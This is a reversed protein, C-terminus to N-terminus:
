DSEEESSSSSDDNESLNDTKKSIEEQKVLFTHMKEIIPDSHEFEHNINNKDMLKGIVEYEGERICVVVISKRRKLNEVTQPDLYPMRNTSDLIYIDREILKSLLSISFTNVDSLLKDSDDKFNKFAQEDAEKLVYTIFKETLDYIYKSKDPSIDKLEKNNKIYSCTEKIIGDRIISIKQTKNKEFVPTIIKEKFVDTFPILETILKCIGLIKESDGVLNKIVRHTASGKAKPDEKFFRYCNLLIDITNEKFSNSSTIGHELEEWSKRDITSQLKSRLGRFLKSRDKQKMSCYDKSYSHLICHFFSSSEASCGTRVLVEDCEIPTRFVVSTDAQIKNIQSFAVM